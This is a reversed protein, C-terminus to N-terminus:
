GDQRWYKEFNDTNNMYEENNRNLFNTAMYRLMGFYGMQKFRRDDQGYYERLIRFRKPSYQRSLVFDETAVYKEPFGGLERFVETRTLFFAGTAFPIFPAILRNAVNFVSYALQARFDSDYAKARFTVLDLDNEHIARVAKQIADTDFFRVDADIFLVYPTTVRSAGNNRAFSVNGGPIIETNLGQWREIIEVTEDTSGADAIYIKVGEGFPNRVGRQAYLDALLRGIYDEENKCPIVITLVDELLTGTFMTDSFM